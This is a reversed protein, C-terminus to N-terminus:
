LTEIDLHAAWSARALSVAKVVPRLPMLVEATNELLQRRGPRPTRKASWRTLWLTRAADDVCLSIQLWIPLPLLAYFLTLGAFAAAMLGDFSPSVLEIGLLSGAVLLWILPIWLSTM